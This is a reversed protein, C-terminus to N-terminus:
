YLSPYPVHWPSKLASYASDTSLRYDYCAKIGIVMNVTINKIKKKKKIKQVKMHLTLAYAYVQDNALVSRLSNM